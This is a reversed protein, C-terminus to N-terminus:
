AAQEDRSPGARRGQKAERAAEADFLHLRSMNVDGLVVGVLKSDLAASSRLLTSLLHRPTRGWEALCVFGDFGPALARAESIPTAPPLDVVVLDFASRWSKLQDAAALHVAEGFGAERSAALFLVGSELRVLAEELSVAGSLVDLFSAGHEHGLAASLHGNAPDADLLLVKRGARAEKEAYALALMSRSASPQLSIIGITKSRNRRRIEIAIRMVRLAAAWRDPEREKPPLLAGDPSASGNRRRGRARRNALPRAVYGLFDVGQAEVEARSRFAGDLIERGLGVAGGAATGLFLAIALIVKKNPFVPLFPLEPKSILRGTTLKLTQQQVAEQYRALYDQYLANYSASRQELGHLTVLTSSDNQFQGTASAVAAAISDAESKAIRYDGRYGELMRRAEQLILGSLREIEARLAKVQDNSEGWRAAVERARSSAQLFDARLLKVPSTDPLDVASAIFGIVAEADNRKVIDEFVAVRAAARTALAHAASLQENLSGLQQDSVLRGDTSVLNNEARFREVAGNADLSQQRLTNIRDELWSGASRTADFRASLQDTLYARGYANALDRALQPDPDNASIEVVMSKEVQYVTVSRLTADVLAPDTDAAALDDASINTVRGSTGSAPQAGAVRLRKADRDYVLDLDHIVRRAVIDSSMVAIQTAVYDETSTPAQQNSVDTLLKNRDQDLLIRITSRYSPEALLLFALALLGGLLAGILALPYQRRVMGLIRVIDAAPEHVQPEASRGVANEVPRYDVGVQEMATM